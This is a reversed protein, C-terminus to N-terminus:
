TSKGDLLRQPNKTMWRLADDRSVGVQNVLVDVMQPLTTACGAFHKRDASWAAGDEDVEVIQDALEYRGPGLGAASIADSVIIINQDPIISLYNKLAFAPIHHGDAILSCPLRDAISLVRQVINDHRHMQRPCANGLHTFLCLGNDVAGLLQDISADCHGAAVILGQDALWLTVKAGDDMEPALTVLKAHGGAAELLEQAMSISAKCVASKPHAGVFGDQVNIFPGEIHIGTIVEAFETNTEILNAIRGIRRIMSQRDATIITALCSAVHDAKLRKAVHSAEDDTLNDSNFDVGAYGNVQLDVFNM